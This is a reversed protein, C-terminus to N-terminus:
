KFDISIREALRFAVISRMRAEIGHEPLADHGLAPAAILAGGRYLAPSAEMARPLGDPLCGGIARRGADGLPALMLKGHDLVTPGAKISVAFRGDWVGEFDGSIAIEPLGNRGAERQFRLAGKRRDVAVGALTRAAVPGEGAALSAALPVLSELRPGYEAGGAARLIRALVRLRTEEPEAAFGAADLRVAGTADVTATALLRDAYDDIAAAARRLNTAATTLRATDLGEAALLPMLARLRARAFRPDANHPDVAPELGAEAVVAALRAREVAIFPRALRMGDRVTESAMAALGYVGSGRAMRLLLTEAQDDAHHATMLVAAGADRAAAFLLRYRQERAAAEIDAVPAFGTAVLPRFALRLRAAAAGVMVVEGAAEPRLGHDVSLVILDPGAPLGQRWRAALLMLALSDAGGSVALALVPEGAWREFM